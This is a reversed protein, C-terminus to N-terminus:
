RHRRRVKAPPPSGGWSARAGGEDRARAAAYLDDCSLGLRLWGGPVVVFGQGLGDHVLEGLGVRGVSTRGARWPAGLTQALAALVEARDAEPTATWTAVTAVAGLADM